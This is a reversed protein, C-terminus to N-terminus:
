WRLLRRAALAGALGSVAIGFTYWIAVFPMASEDCHFAYVFAGAGGACVGAVAGSLTPRTPALGRLAWLGGILLPASLAAIRWPCLDHSAGMALRERQDPAAAIWQALGLLVMLALPAVAGAAQAANRAGPRSLRELLWLASAATALTYAFKVWFPGTAMADAFDPRVGLWALMIAASVITGAGLGLGLRRAAYFRAVPRVDAGLREILDDTPM